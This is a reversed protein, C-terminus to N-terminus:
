SLPRAGTGGREWSKMQRRWRVEISLADGLAKRTGYIPSEEILLVSEARQNSKDDIKQPTDRRAIAEGNTAREISDRKMFANQFERSITIPM